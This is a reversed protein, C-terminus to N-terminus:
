ADRGHFVEWLFDHKAEPLWVVGAKKLEECSELGVIPGVWPVDEVLIAMSVDFTDFFPWFFAKFLLYSAILTKM